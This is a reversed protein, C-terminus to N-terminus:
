GTSTNFYMFYSALNAINSMVLPHYSIGEVTGLFGSCNTDRMILNLQKGQLISSDSNVDDIAAEIAPKVSRGIVSNVTFLAGVNFVTLESSSVNRGAVGVPVGVCLIMICVTASALVYGEM